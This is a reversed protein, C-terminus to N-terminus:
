FCMGTGSDRYSRGAVSLFEWAYTGPGLTLKLVGHANENITESNPSIRWMATFDNGGTGVVFQRIGRQDDRNGSPDQPALREYNHSHGTLVLEVRNDYLVQWIHRMQPMDGEFGSSLAPHHWYAVTCRARSNQLEQQVWLAQPSGPGAPVNSNLSLVKWSGHDYSYYGRGSPGAAAGFYDYYGTAGATYYDHNGPSPRTRAKHRGWTPEYCTAFEAATGTEYVNDGTTFVVGDIGDLIKATAEAGKNNPCSVMDGAGVLTVTEQNESPANNVPSNGTPQTPANAGPCAAVALCVLGILLTAVSRSNTLFQGAAM